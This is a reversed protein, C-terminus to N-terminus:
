MDFPQFPIYNTPKTSYLPVSNERRQEYNHVSKGEYPYDSELETNIFRDCVYQAATIPHGGKCFNQNGFANELLFQESLDIKGDKMAGTLWQPLINANKRYMDRLIANEEM